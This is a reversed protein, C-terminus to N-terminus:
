RPPEFEWGYRQAIALQEAISADQQGSSVDAEVFFGEIGAPSFILVRRGTTESVNAGSHVIGRPVHATTGPGLRSERGDITVSFKGKLVHM